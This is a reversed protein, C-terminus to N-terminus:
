GQPYSGTNLYELYDGYSMAALPSQLDSDRMYQAMYPVSGSPTSPVIQQQAAYPTAFSSQPTYAPTPATGPTDPLAFSSHPTYADKYQDNMAKYQEYMIEVDSITMHPLGYQQEKLRLDQLFDKFPVVGDGGAVPEVQVMDGSPSTIDQSPRAQPRVSGSPKRGTIENVASMVARGTGNKNNLMRNQYGAPRITANGLASLLGGGQFTDGSRGAGGGDIMDLLNIYQGNM